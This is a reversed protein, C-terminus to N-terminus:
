RRYHAAIADRMSKPAAGKGDGTKPASGKVRAEVGKQVAKQWVGRIKKISEACAEADTYDLLDALESPMQQDALDSLAQARLERKTIEAERKTLNEERTKAEEAARQEATLGALRQAESVAKEQQRKWKAQEKRIMRDVDAQSFTKEGKQGDAGDSGKGDDGGDTEKGQAGKGGDAGDDGGNAGDDGGGAGTNPAYHFNADRRMQLMRLYNM